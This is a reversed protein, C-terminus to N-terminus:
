QLGKKIRPALLAYVAGCIVIIAGVCILMQPWDNGKSLIMDNAKYAWYFPSWWFAIQWNGTVLEYGVVSGALPLFMLKVSGAAEMVDNSNIGQVFGIIMSLITTAIVILAAQGINIDSFGTIALGAASLALAFVVGILSKGLIFAGRSVTSVNVARVTKDMKEEVINLSILMGALVANFLLMINVMVKKLPPITRGFDVIEARAKDPQAGSVYLANILKAYEVSASPENGQSLIAPRGNEYVIGLVSDRQMVRQEAAQENDLLEVHAFRDYYSVLSSSEGRVMAVNVTTDNIGPTILNIGVALVLPIIILILSITERTNVKMDRTFITWIKKFMNM